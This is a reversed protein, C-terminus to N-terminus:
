QIEKLNSRRKAGRLSLIAKKEIAYAKFRLACFRKSSKSDVLKSLEEMVRLSEKVREINAEFVDSISRRKMESPLKSRKLIDNESDRSEKLVERMASNKIIDTIGHRVLKLDKTLVKSNLAFRTIDECVRLGERSRNVNADIIRFIDAKM